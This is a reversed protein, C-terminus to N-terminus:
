AQDGVDAPLEFNRFDLLRDLQTESFSFIDSFCSTQSTILCHGIAFIEFAGQIEFISEIILVPRPAPM